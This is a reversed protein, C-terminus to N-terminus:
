QGLPKKARWRGWWAVAGGILGVIATVLQIGQSINEVWFRQDEADISYGAIGGLGALVAVLAGITVRSQYWPEQNTLHEIVPALEKEVAKTLAPEVKKVDEVGMKTKPDAAKDLLVDTVTKSIDLIDKINAM